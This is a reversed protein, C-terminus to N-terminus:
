HASKFYNEIGELTGNVFQKRYASSTLNLSRVGGLYEIELLNSPIGHSKTLVYLSHTLKKQKTKADVEEYPREAPKASIWSQKNLAKNISTALATDKADRKDYM